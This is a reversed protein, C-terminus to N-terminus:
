LYFILLLLLCRPLFEEFPTFGPDQVGNAIVADLFAEMCEADKGKNMVPTHGVFKQIINEKDLVRLHGWSNEKPRPILFQQEPLSREMRSAAMASAANIMLQETSTVRFLLYSTFYTVFLLINKVTEHINNASEFFMFLVIDNIQLLWGTKEWKSPRVLLQHVTDIYM